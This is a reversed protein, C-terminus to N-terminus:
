SVGCTAANTPKKWHKYSTKEPPKAMDSARKAEIVMELEQMRLEMVKVLGSRAYPKAAEFDRARQLVDKDCCRGVVRLAEARDSGVMASIPLCFRCQWDSAKVAGGCFKCRKGNMKGMRMLAARYAAELDSAPQIM